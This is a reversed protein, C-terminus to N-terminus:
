FKRSQQWDSGKETLFRGLAYAVGSLLLSSAFFGIAFAGNAKGLSLVLCAVSLLLMPLLYSEERLRIASAVGIVSGLGLLGVLHEIGTLPHLLGSMLAHDALHHGEHAAGSASMTLLAITAGTKMPTLKKM